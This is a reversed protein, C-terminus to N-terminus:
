KKRNQLREFADRTAPKAQDWPLTAGGENEWEQRLKPEIEDFTDRGFKSYASVGYMFAPRYTDYVANQPVYPRTKYTQNWYADEETPNVGEAVAHGALGGVIGGIAAGAITGAPGIASGMAAGTAVAGAVGATAGAVTGISTGIPHSGPEHTIPDLNEHKKKTNKM